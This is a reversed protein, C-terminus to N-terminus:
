SYFIENQAVMRRLLVCARYRDERYDDYLSDIQHLVSELGRQDGWALL